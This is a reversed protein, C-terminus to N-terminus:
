HATVLKDLKSIPIRTMHQDGHHRSRIVLVDGEVEIATTSCEDCSLRLKRYAPADPSAAHTHLDATM